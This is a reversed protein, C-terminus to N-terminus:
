AGLIQKRTSNMPTLEDAYKKAKKLVESAQKKTINNVACIIDKNIWKNTKHYAILVNHIAFSINKDEDLDFKGFFKVNDITKM